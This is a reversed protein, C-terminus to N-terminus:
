GSLGLAQLAAVIEAATSLATLTPQVVPTAGYFGLTTAGSGNDSIEVGNGAHGLLQLQTGANGSGVTAGSGTLEISGGGSDQGINVQHTEFGTSIGPSDDTAGGLAFWGTDDATTAVYAGGNETDVYITGIGNAPVVSGAPVGSGTQIAFGGGGVDAFDATLGDENVTLVQGATGGGLYEIEGTLKAITGTSDEFAAPAKIGAM